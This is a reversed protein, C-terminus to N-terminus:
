EHQFPVKLDLRISESLYECTGPRKRIGILEADM